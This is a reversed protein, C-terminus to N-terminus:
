FEVIQLAPRAISGTGGVVATLALDFWYGTGQTLSLPYAMDAPGGQAPLVSYVSGITQYTATVGTAGNAPPVGTGYAAFVTVGNNTTGSSAQSQWSLYCIGSRTPTYQNTSGLGMMVKNATDATGTPTSTLNTFGTVVPPRYSVTVNTTGNVLIGTGGTVSQVAGLAGVNTAGVTGVGDSLYLVSNTAGRLGDLKVGSVGTAGGVVEIKSIKIPLPTVPNLLQELSM